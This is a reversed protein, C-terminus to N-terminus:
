PQTESAIAKTSKPRLSLAMFKASRGQTIRGDIYFEVGDVNLSGTYDPDQEAEKRNNRFLAGSNLRQPKRQMEHDGISNERLTLIEPVAWRRAGETLFEFAERRLWGRHKGCGTCRLEAAHVGTRARITAINECCPNTQDIPRALRVLPDREAIVSPTLPLPANMAAGPDARHSRNDPSKFQARPRTKTDSANNFFQEL